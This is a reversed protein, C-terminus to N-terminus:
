LEEEFITNLKIFMMSQFTLPYVFKDRQHSIQCLALKNTNILAPIRCVIAKSLGKSHCESIGVLGNLCMCTTILCM